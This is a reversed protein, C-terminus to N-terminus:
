VPTPGAPPPTTELHLDASAPPGSPPAAEVFISGLVDADADDGVDSESPSVTVEPRAAPILVTPSALLAEGRENLWQSEDAPITLPRSCKSCVTHKGARMELAQLIQGCHPCRYRFM